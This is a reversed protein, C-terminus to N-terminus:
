GRWPLMVEEINDALAQSLPAVDTELREMAENNLAKLYGRSLAEPSLTGGYLSRGIVFAQNVEGRLASRELERVQAMIQLTRASPSDVAGRPPVGLDDCVQGIATLPEVRRTIEEELSIRV